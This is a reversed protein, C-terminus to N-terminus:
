RNSDLIEYEVGVGWFQPQQIDPDSGDFDYGFEYAESSSQLALPLSRNPMSYTAQLDSDALAIYRKSARMRDRSAFARLGNMYGIQAGKRYIPNFSKAAKRRATGFVDTACYAEAIVSKGTFTMTNTGASTANNSMTLEALSDVSLVTTNAPIGTGTIAAGVVVRAFSGTTTLIAETGSAINTTCSLTHTAGMDAPGNEPQGAGIEEIRGNTATTDSAMYIHLGDSRRVGVIPGCAVGTGSFDFKWPTSWGYPRREGNVGRMLEELGSGSASQSFDYTMLYDPKQSDQNGRFTVYIVGEIVSARFYSADTGALTSNKSQEIEYAWTGTRTAANYVAGSLCFESQGDCAMLGDETLYAVWGDGQIFSDTSICGRRENIVQTFYDEDLGSRTDRTNRIVAIGRQCAIVQGFTANGGAMVSGITAPMERYNGAVWASGSLAGIGPGGETFYVRRKTASFDVTRPALWGVFPYSSSFSTAIGATGDGFDVSGTSILDTAAATPDTGPVLQAMWEVSGTANITDCLDQMTNTGFTYTLILAGLSWLKLQTDTIQCRADTIDLPTEDAEETTSGGSLKPSMIIGGRFVNGNGAWARGEGTWMFRSPVMFTRDFRVVKPDITLNFDAVTAPKGNTNALGGDSDVTFWVQMDGIQLEDPEAAMPTALVHIRRAGHPGRYLRMTVSSYHTGEVGPVHILGLGQPLTASIPRPIFPQSFSGDEYEFVQSVYFWKDGEWPGDGLTWSAAATPVINSNIQPPGLPPINGAPFVRVNESGATTSANFRKNWWHPVGDYSPFYLRDAVEIANWSGSAVVAREAATLLRTYAGSALLPVVKFDSPYQTASYDKGVVENAASANGATGTSRFAFCGYSGGYLAGYTAQGDSLSPSTFEFMRRPQVNALGTELLASVATATGPRVKFSGDVAVYDFNYGDAVHDDPVMHRPTSSMFGTFPLGYRKEPM